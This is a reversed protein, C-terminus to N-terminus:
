KPPYRCLNIEMGSIEKKKLNKHLDQYRNPYEKDYFAAGVKVMYESLSKEGKFCEAILQNKSNKYEGFCRIPLGKEKSAPSRVKGSLKYRSTKGSKRDRGRKDLCVQDIKPAKIGYLKVVTDDIKLTDGSIVFVDEPKAYLIPNISAPFLQPPVYSNTNVESKECGLISLTAFLLIVSKM